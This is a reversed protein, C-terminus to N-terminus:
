AMESSVLTTDPNFLEGSLFHKKLEYRADVDKLTNLAEESSRPPRRLRVKFGSKGRKTLNESFELDSEERKLDQKLSQIDQDDSPQNAKSNASEKKLKMLQILKVYENTEMDNMENALDM